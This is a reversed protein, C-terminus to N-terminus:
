TARAKWDDDAEIGDIEWRWIIKQYTFAVRERFEHQMNEPYKNNLQEQHISSITGNVLEITYYHQEAGEASPRFFMLNWTAVEENNTLVNMLSPSAKDVAKIITFPKHRRKGSPLGSSADRPSDVAHDVGWIEIKGTHPDIDCSGDIKGQTKGELTLYASLAM